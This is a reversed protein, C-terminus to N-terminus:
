LASCLSPISPRSFPSAELIPRVPPGETAASGKIRLPAASPERFLLLDYAEGHRDRTM